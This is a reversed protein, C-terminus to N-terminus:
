AFFSAQVTRPRCIKPELAGSVSQARFSDILKCTVLSQWTAQAANMPSLRSSTCAHELRSTGSCSEVVVSRGTDPLSCKAMPALLWARLMERKAVQGEDVMIAQEGLRKGANIDFLLVGSGQDARMGGPQYGAAMDQGDPSLAVSIVVGENVFFPEDGRLTRTTTDWLGM